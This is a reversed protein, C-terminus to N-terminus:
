DVTSDAKVRALNKVGMCYSRRGERTLRLPSEGLVMQLM